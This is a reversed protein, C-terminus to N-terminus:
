FSNHLANFGFLVVSPPIYINSIKIPVKIGACDATGIIGCNFGFFQIEGKKFCRTNITSAYLMDLAASMKEMTPYSKTGRTLILPLLANLSATEKALPQAFSVSLYNNKFKATDLINLGVGENLEIRRIPM